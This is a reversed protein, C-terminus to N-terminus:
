KNRRRVVFAIGAVGLALLSGPEPVPTTDMFSTVPVDVVWNGGPGSLQVGDLFFRQVVWNTGGSTYTWPFSGYIVGWTAAGATLTMPAVSGSFGPGFGPNTTSFTTVQGSTNGYTGGPPPQSFGILQTGTYLTGTGWSPNLPRRIEWSALVGAHAGPATNVIVQGTVTFHTTFNTISLNNTVTGIQSNPAVSFFAPGSFIQAQSAAGLVAMGLVFGIKTNM